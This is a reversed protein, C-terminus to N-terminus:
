AYECLYASPVSVEVGFNQKADIEFSSGPGFDQWSDTGPFQIRLSGSIVTMTEHTDTGFSYSGPQMVGVTKKGDQEFGLSKVGGDFYENFSIM